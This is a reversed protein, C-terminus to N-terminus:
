YPCYKKDAIYFYSENPLQKILENLITLGGIGSDILGIANNRKKM